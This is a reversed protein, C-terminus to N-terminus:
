SASPFSMCLPSGTVGPPHPSAAALRHDEPASCGRMKHQVGPFPCDVPVLEQLTRAGLVCRRNSTTRTACHIEM